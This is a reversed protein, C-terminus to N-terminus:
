KNMDKEFELKQKLDEIQALLNEKEKRDAIQRDEYLKRLNRINNLQREYEERLNDSLIETEKEALLKEIDDIKKRLQRCLDISIYNYSLIM